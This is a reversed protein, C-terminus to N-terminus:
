QESFKSVPKNSTKRNIFHSIVKLFTRLSSKTSAVIPTTVINPQNSPNRQIQKLNCSSPMGSAKGNLEKRLKLGEFVSLDDNPFTKQIYALNFCNARDSEDIQNKLDM